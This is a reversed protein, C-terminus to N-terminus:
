LTSPKVTWKRLASPLVSTDGTHYSFNSSRGLLGRLECWGPLELLRFVCNFHLQSTKVFNIWDNLYKLGTNPCLVTTCYEQARKHVLRCRHMSALFIKFYDLTKNQNVSFVSLWNLENWWIKQITLKPTISAITSLMNIFTLLGNFM